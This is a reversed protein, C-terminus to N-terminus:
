YNILVNRQSDIQILNDFSMYCLLKLAESLNAKFKVEINMFGIKPLSIYEASQDAEFDANLNFAYMAHCNKFTEYSIAPQESSRVAGIQLFLEYYERQYQDQDFDPTYAARPFSENNVNISLYILDHHAFKFPSKTYSGAFATNTVLALIIKHPIQGSHINDIFFTNQGSNLNIIKMLSRKIPYFAPTKQLKSEQADRTSKSVQVRRIFLTADILVFKPETAAKTPASTKAPSGMCIFQDKGRHLTIRMDLGNIMLKSSNFISGTFRGYFSFTKSRNFYKAFDSDVADCDYSPSKGYPSIYGASKMFSNIKDPSLELTAEFFSSYPQTNSSQTILTAGLMVSIQDWVTFLPYNILSNRGDDSDLFSTGDQKVLKAKYLLFCNQLDVYHEPSTPIIFEVSNSENLTNIPRVPIIFSHEISRQFAYKAFLDLESKVVEETAM